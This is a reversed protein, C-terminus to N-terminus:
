SPLWLSVSVLHAPLCRGAWWRGLRGRVCMPSPTGEDFGPQDGLRIGSVLTRSSCPPAKTAEPKRALTHYPRPDGLLIMRCFRITTSICYVKFKVNHSQSFEHTIMFFAFPFTCLTQLLSIHQFLVTVIFSVPISSNFYSSFDNVRISKHQWKDNLEELWM